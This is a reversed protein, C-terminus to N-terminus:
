IVMQSDLGLLFEFVFMTFEYQELKWSGFCNILFREIM